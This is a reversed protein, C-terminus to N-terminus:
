ATPSKGEEAGAEADDENATTQPPEEVTKAGAAEDEPASAQQEQPTKNAAEAPTEPQDQEEMGDLKAQAEETSIAGSEVGAELEKIEEQRDKAIMEGDAVTEKAAMLDAEDKLEPNGKLFSVRVAMYNKFLPTDRLAEVKRKFKIVAAQDNRDVIESNLTELSSRLEQGGEFDQVELFKGILAETNHLRRSTREVFQPPTLPKKTHAAFHRIDVNNFDFAGSQELQRFQVFRIGPPMSEIVDLKERVSKFHEMLDDNDASVMELTAKVAAIQDVDSM